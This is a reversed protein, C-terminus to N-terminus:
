YGIPHHSVKKEEEQPQPVSPVVSKAQVVKGGDSSDSSDSSSGSSSSGSGSGNDDSDGEDASSNEEIANGEEEAAKKAALKDAIKQKQAAVASEVEEETRIRNPRLSYPRVDNAEKEVCVWFEQAQNPRLTAEAPLRTTVFVQSVKTTFNLSYPKDTRKTPIGEVEGSPQTWDKLVVSGLGKLGKKTDTFEFRKEVTTPGCDNIPYFYGKRKLVTDNQIFTYIKKRQWEPQTLNKLKKLMEHREDDDDLPLESAVADFETKVAGDCEYEKLLVALPQPYTAAAIGCRLCLNGDPCEKVIKEDKVIYKTHAWTVAEDGVM